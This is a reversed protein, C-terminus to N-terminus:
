LWIGVIVRAFWRALWDRGSMCQFRVLTYRGSVVTGNLLVTIAEDSWAIESYSGRDFVEIRGAGPEGPPIVGEFDGFALDHDETAPALRQVGPRDPLGKPM